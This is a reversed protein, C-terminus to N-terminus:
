SACIYDCIPKALITCLSKVLNLAIIFDPHILHQTLVSAQTMVNFLM